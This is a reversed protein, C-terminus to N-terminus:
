KGHSYKIPTRRSPIGHHVPASNPAFFEVQTDTDEKVEGIHLAMVAAMCDEHTFGAGVWDMDSTCRELYPLGLVSACKALFTVLDLLLVLLGSAYYM